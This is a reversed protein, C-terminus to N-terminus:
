AASRAVEILVKEDRVREEVIKKYVSSAMRAESTPLPDLDFKLIVFKVLVLADKLADVDLPLAEVGGRHPKTHAVVQPIGDEELPVDLSGEGMGYDRELRRAAKEGFSAKGGMLQSIYSKEKEPLSRTAFWERLRARRIDAIKM